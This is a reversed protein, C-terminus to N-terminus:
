QKGEPPDRHKLYIEFDEMLALIGLMESVEYGDWGCDFTAEFYEKMDPGLHDKVREFLAVIEDCFEDTIKEKLKRTEM